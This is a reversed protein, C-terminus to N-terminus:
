PHRQAGELTPLLHDPMVSQPPQRTQGVHLHSIDPKRHIYASKHLQITVTTLCGFRGRHLVRSTKLQEGMSVMRPSCYGMMRDHKAKAHWLRVKRHNFRAPETAIILDRVDFDGKVYKSKFVSIRKRYPSLCRALRSHLTSYYLGQFQPFVIVVWSIELEGSLM